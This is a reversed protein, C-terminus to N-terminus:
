RFRAKARPRTLYAWSLLSVLVVMGVWGYSRRVDIGAAHQALMTVAHLLLTLPLLALWCKRGWERLLAVGLGSLIAAGGIFFDIVIVALQYQFWFPSRDTAGSAFSLLWHAGESVYSSGLLVALLGFLRAPV